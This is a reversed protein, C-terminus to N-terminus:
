NQVALAVAMLLQDVSFPNDPGSPHSDGNSAIRNHASLCSGAVIIPVDPRLKKILRVAGATELHPADSDTVLARVENRHEQFRSVGQLSNQAAMVRYGFNELTARTLECMAEEEELVLILEGRGAPLSAPDPMAPRPEPAAFAPLYISFETGCGAQTVVDIGGGAQRALRAVLALGENSQHGNTAGALEPGLLLRLEDPPLGPGTDTVTLRVYAGPNLGARGAEEREAQVNQASLTLRGGSPMSERARVCLEILAQNLDMPDIRAPWLDAPIARITVLILQPFTERAMAAIEDIVAAVPTPATSAADRAFGLIKKVMGIGRRASVAIINRFKERDAANNCGRLLEASMLAPTLANRLDHAFSAALSGIHDLRQVRHLSGELKKKETVDTSASLIAEPSGDPRRLLRWRSFLTVDGGNKARLLIEGCWDEAAFVTRTAELLLARPGTLLEAFDRGCAEAETWGFLDAAGRNWSFIRGELSQVVIADRTLNLLGAQQRIREEAARKQAQDDAEQLARRIAPVLRALKQKLIYDTAGSKLSEVAEVDDLTGSLMIVPTLPRVQKALRLAAFGDYGPIAHDCIVLDFLGDAVAKEFTVRNHALEIACDLGGSALM